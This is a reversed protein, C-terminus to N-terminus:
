VTFIYCTVHSAPEYSTQYATCTPYIQYLRIFRISLKSFVLSHRGSTISLFFFLSIRALVYEDIATFKTFCISWDALDYLCLTQVTLTLSNSLNCPICIEFLKQLDFDSFLHTKCCSCGTDVDIHSRIKIIFRDSNPTRALVAKLAGTKTDQQPLPYIEIVQPSSM